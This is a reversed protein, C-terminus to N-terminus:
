PQTHKGHGYVHMVVYGILIVVVFLFVLDIIGLSIVRAPEEIQPPQPSLAHV